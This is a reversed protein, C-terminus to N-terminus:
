LDFSNGREDILVPLDFRPSAIISVDDLLATKKWEVSAFGKTHAPHMVLAYPKRGHEKVYQEIGHEM